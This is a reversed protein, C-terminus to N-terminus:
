SIWAGCAILFAVRAIIQLPYGRITPWIGCRRPTTRAITFNIDMAGSSTAGARPDSAAAPFCTRAKGFQVQTFAPRDSAASTDRLLPMPSPGDRHDPVALGALELVTPDIDVFEDMRPCDHTDSLREGIGIAHM